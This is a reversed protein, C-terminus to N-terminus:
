EEHSSIGQSSAKGHQGAVLNGPLPPRRGGPEVRREPLRLSGPPEGRAEKEGPRANGEVRFEKLREKYSKAGFGEGAGSGKESGM